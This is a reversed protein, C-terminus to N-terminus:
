NVRRVNQDKVTPAVIDTICASNGTIKAVVLYSTNKQSNAPDDSSNLRIILAFPKLAKGAGKVRWEAKEQRCFVM